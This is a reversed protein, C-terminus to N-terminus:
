ERKPFMFRIAFGFNFRWPYTDPNIIEYEPRWDITFQIPGLLIGLGIDGVIAGQFDSFDLSGGGAGIGTYFTIADAEIINFLKIASLGYGNNNWAGNIEFKGINQYTLAGGGFSGGSYGFVGRIGIGSQSFSFLPTIILVIIILSKKM